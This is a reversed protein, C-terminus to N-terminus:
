CSRSKWGSTGTSDLTPLGGLATRATDTGSGNSSSEHSEFLGSIMLERCVSESSRVGAELTSSISLSSLVTDSGALCEM